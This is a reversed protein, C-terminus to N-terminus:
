IKQLEKEYQNKLQQLYLLLQTKKVNAQLIASQKESRPIAISGQLEKLALQMNPKIATKYKSNLIKQMADSQLSMGVLERYSEESKEYTDANLSTIGLVKIAFEVALPFFPVQIFRLAPNIWDSWPKGDALQKKLSDTVTFPKPLVTAAGASTASIESAPSNEVMNLILEKFNFMLSARAQDYQVAEYQQKVAKGIDTLGYLKLVWTFDKSTTIADITAAKDVYEKVWTKFQLELMSALATSKKAFGETNSDASYEMVKTNNAELSSVVDDIMGMANIAREKLKFVGGYEGIGKIMNFPDTFFGIIFQKELEIREQDPLRYLWAPKLVSAFYVVSTIGYRDMQLNINKKWYPLLDDFFKIDARTDSSSEAHALLEAQAVLDLMTGYLGIDDVAVALDPHRSFDQWKKLNEINWYTKVIQFLLPNYTKVVVVRERARIATVGLTSRLSRLNADKSDLFESQKQAFRELPSLTSTSVVERSGGQIGQVGQSGQAYIMLMDQVTLKKGQPIVENTVPHRGEWKKAQLSKLKAEAAKFDDKAKQVMQPGIDVAGESTMYQSLARKLQELKAIEQERNAAVSESSALLSSANEQDLLGYAASKVILTSLDNLAKDIAERRAETNQFRAPSRIILSVQRLLGFFTTQYVVSNYNNLVLEYVDFLEKHESVKRLVCRLFKSSQTVFPNATIFEGYERICAIVQSSESDSGLFQDSLSKLRFAELQGYRSFDTNGVSKVSDVNDVNDVICDYVIRKFTASEEVGRVLSSILANIADYIYPNESPDKESYQVQGQITNVVVAMDADSIVPADSTTNLSNKLYAIAINAIQENDRRESISAPVEVKQSRVTSLMDVLKEQREIKKMVESVYAKFKSYLKEADALRLKAAEFQEQALQIQMRFQIFFLKYLMDQNLIISRGVQRSYASNLLVLAQQLNKEVIAANSSLEKFKSQPRQTITETSFAGESQMLATIKANNDNVRKTIWRVSVSCNVLDVFLLRIKDLVANFQPTERLKLNATNQSLVYFVNVVNEIVKEVSLKILPPLVRQKHHQDIPGNYKLADVYMNLEELFIKRMVEKVVDSAVADITAIQFPPFTLKSTSAPAIRSTLRVLELKQRELEKLKQDIEKQEIENLQTQASKQAKLEAIDRDFDDVTPFFKKKIETSNSSNIVAYLLEAFHSVIDHGIMYREENAAKLARNYRLKELNLDRAKKENDKVIAAQILAFSRLNNGQSEEIIEQNKLLFEKATKLHEAIQNAEPSQGQLPALVEDIEAVSVMGTLFTSKIDNYRQALANEVPESVSGLVAFPAFLYYNLLSFKTTLRFHCGTTNYFSFYKAATQYRSEDARSPEQSAQKNYQVVTNLMFEILDLLALYSQIALAPNSSGSFAAKQQIKILLAPNALEQRLWDTYFSCVYATFESNINVPSTSSSKSARVRKSMLEMAVQKLGDPGGATGSAFIRKSLGFIANAQVAFMSNNEPSLRVVVYEDKDASEKLINLQDKLDDDLLTSESARLQAQVKRLMTQATIKFDVPPLPPLIGKYPELALKLQEINADVDYKELKTLDARVDRSKLSRLLASKYWTYFRLLSSSDGTILRLTELASAALQNANFANVIAQDKLDKVSEDNSHLYKQFVFYSGDRLLTEGLLQTSAQSISQRQQRTFWAFTSRVRMCSSAQGEVKIKSDDGQDLPFDPYFSVMVKLMDNYKVPKVITQYYYRDTLIGEKENSEYEAIRSELLQMYNIQKESLSENAAEKQKLDDLIEKASELRDKKVIAESLLKYNKAKAYSLGISSVESTPNALQDKLFEAWYAYDRAPRGKISPFYAPELNLEADTNESGAPPEPIALRMTQWVSGLQDILNEITDSVLNASNLEASLKTSFSGTRSSQNQIFDVLNRVNILNYFAQKAQQPSQGKALDQYQGLVNESPPYQNVLINPISIANNVDNMTKQFRSAGYLFSRMQSFASKFTNTKIVESEPICVSNSSLIDRTQVEPVDSASGESRDPVFAFYPINSKAWTNPREKSTYLFPRELRNKGQNVNTTINFIAVETHTLPGTSSDVYRAVIVPFDLDFDGSSISAIRDLKAPDVSKAYAEMNSQQEAKGVANKIRTVIGSGVIRLFAVRHKDDTPNTILEIMDNILKEANPSIIKEGDSNVQDRFARLEDATIVKYKIVPNIKRNGLTKMSYNLDQASLEAKGGLSEGSASFNGYGTEPDWQDNTIISLPRAYAPLGVLDKIDLVRYKFQGDNKEIDALEKERQRRERTEKGRSVRDKTTVQRTSRLEVLRAYTLTLQLQGKDEAYVVTYANGDLLNGCYEPYKGRKDLHLLPNNSSKKFINNYRPKDSKIIYQAKNQSTTIQQVISQGQQAERQEKLARAVNYGEAGRAAREAREAKKLDSRDSASNLRVISLRDASRREGHPKRDDFIVDIMGAPQQAKVTGMRLGKSDTTMAVRTGPTLKAYDAM